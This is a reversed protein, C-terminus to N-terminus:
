KKPPSLSSLASSEAPTPLVAMALSTCLDCLLPSSNTAAQLVDRTATVAARRDQLLQDTVSCFGFFEHVEQREGELSMGMGMRLLLGREMNQEEEAAM